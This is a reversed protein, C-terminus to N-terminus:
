RSSQCDMLIHDVPSQVILERAITWIITSPKGQVPRYTKHTKGNPKGHLINHTKETHNIAQKILKLKIPNFQMIFIQNPGLGEQPWRNDNIKWQKSSLRSIPLLSWLFSIKWSSSSLPPSWFSQLSTSTFPNRSSLKSTPNYDGNLPFPFAKCQKGMSTPWVNYGFWTFKSDQTAKKIKKIERCSPPKIYIQRLQM